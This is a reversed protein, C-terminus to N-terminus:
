ALYQRIAERQDACGEFPMEAFQYQRWCSVVHEVLLRERPSADPRILESRLRALDQEILERMLLNGGWIDDQALGDAVYIVPRGASQKRSWSPMGSGSRQRPGM